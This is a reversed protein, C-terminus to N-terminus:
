IGWELRRRWSFRPNQENIASLYEKPLLTMAAPPPRFSISVSVVAQDSNGFPCFQKLFDPFADKDKGKSFVQVECPAM